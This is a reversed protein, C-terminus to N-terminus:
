RTSKAIDSLLCIDGVPDKPQGAAQKPAPAASGTTKPAPASAAQPQAPTGKPAGKDAGKAM